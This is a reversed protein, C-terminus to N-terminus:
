ENKEIKKIEIPGFSSSQSLIIVKQRFLFLIALFALILEAKSRSSVIEDMTLRAANEIRSLIEKIKEEVSIIRAMTKTEPPRLLATLEEVLKWLYRSLDNTTPPVKPPYFGVSYGQWLSRTFIVSNKELILKLKKSAELYRQYEKLRKELLVIEEQEEATLDLQPLLNRSKILLLTAAVLLFDALESPHVEINSIASLYQDTISALAIQNIELKEKTILELLLELPGEFQPLKVETM